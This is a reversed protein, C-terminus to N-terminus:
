PKDDALRRAKDGCQSCCWKKPPIACIVWVILWLGGTLLTLILHLLHNTGRSRILVQQKCTECYGKAERFETM